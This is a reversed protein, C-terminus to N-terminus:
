YAGRKGVVVMVTRFLIRLDLLLCSRMAYARDMAVRRRYEVDNRGSVQWLGTVGPKMALYHRIARGYKFIEEQVIPRPGVLSMEGRLVNWLQPLEDLSTKRLFCGVLTIRPDDRLKHHVVWEERLEPSKLFLEQLAEEANPVMTRFKYVTFRRGAQGIRRHRFLVPGGTAWLSATVFIIVPSFFVALLLAGAVDLARKGPWQRHHPLPTEHIGRGTAPKTLAIADAPAAYARADDRAVNRYTSSRGEMM